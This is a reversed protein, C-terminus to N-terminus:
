EGEFMERRRELEDGLWEFVTRVRPTRLAHEAAVLWLAGDLEGGIDGVSRLPPKHAGIYTPLLALGVGQAALEAMLIDSSASAAQRWPEVHRDIWRRGEVPGLQECPVVWRADPRAAGDPGVWEPAAYIRWRLPAVCRSSPSSPPPRKLCRLAIDAAGHSMDLVADSLLIELHLAPHARALAALVPPLVLLGISAVTTLRVRGSVQVESRTIRREFEAITDGMLNALAAMDEGAATPRYGFREREFLKHGLRAEMAALRRFLTSHNLGLREAARTLSQAEAIARVIRFEDWNLPDGM